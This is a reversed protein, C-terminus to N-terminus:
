LKREQLLGASRLNAVARDQDISEFEAINSVIWRADETSLDPRLERIEEALELARDHRGASEYHDILRVRVQVHQPMAQRAREWLGVARRQNGRASEIYGLMEWVIPIPFRPSLRLLKAITQEADDYLGLAVQTTALMLYGGDLSPALEVARKASALALEPEHRLRHLGALVRHAGADYPDLDLARAVAEDAQKVLDHNGEAFALTNEVLYASALYSWAEAYEPDKAVALLFLRRAEVADEKTFRRFHLKGRMLAEYATLDAPATKEIREQGAERIELNLRGVVTEVIESQVAFFDSLKRDYREAWVHAGTRTDILQANIRVQDGARRVSGEVLYDVALENRLESPKVSRGKLSFATGRSLVLLNRVKSLETTLDETM